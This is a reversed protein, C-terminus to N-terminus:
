LYRNRQPWSPASFGWLPPPYFTAIRFLLSM